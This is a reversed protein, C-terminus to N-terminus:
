YREAGNIRARSPTTSYDPVRYERPGVLEGLLGAVGPGFIVSGAALGAVAGALVTPDADPAVCGRAGARIAAVVGAPGTLALVPVSSRRLVVGAGPLRMDLVLVDPRHRAVAALADEATTATAVARLGAEAGAWVVTTM